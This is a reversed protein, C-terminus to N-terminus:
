MVMSVVIKVVAKEVAVAFISKRPSFGVRCAKCFVAPVVSM